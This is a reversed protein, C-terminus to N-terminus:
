LVKPACALAPALRSSRPRTILPLRDARAHASDIRTGDLDFTLTTPLMM